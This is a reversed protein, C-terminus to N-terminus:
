RLPPAAQPEFPELDKSIVSACRKAWDEALDCGALAQVARATHGADRYMTARQFALQCGGQTKHADMWKAAAEPDIFGFYGAIRSLQPSREDEAAFRLELAALRAAQSPDLFGRRLRSLGRLSAAEVMENLGGVSSAGQALESELESEAEANRNLRMLVAARLLHAGQLLPGTSRAEHQDRALQAVLQSSFTEAEQLHRRQIAVSVLFFTLRGLLRRDYRSARQIASKLAEILAGDECGQDYLLALAYLAVASHADAQAADSCASTAATLERDSPWDRMQRRAVLCEALLAQPDRPALRLAHDADARALGLDSTADDGAREAALRLLTSREALAPVYGPDAALAADLLARGRDLFE